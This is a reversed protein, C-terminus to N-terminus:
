GAKRGERLAWGEVVGTVRGGTGEADGGRGAAADCPGGCAALQNSKREAGGPTPGFSRESGGGTGGSLLARNPSGADGGPM